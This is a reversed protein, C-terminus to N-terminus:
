ISLLTGEETGIGNINCIFVKNVGKKLADFSNNLKPIMGEFIKNEKLYLQFLSESLESILTSEDEADELSEGKRLFM